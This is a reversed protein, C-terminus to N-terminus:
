KFEPIPNTRVWIKEEPIYRWAQEDLLKREVQRDKFVYLIVASQTATKAEGEGTMIPSQLVQYHAVKINDLNDPIKTVAKLEPELFNYAQGILGWRITAGYTRLAKTLTKEADTESMKGLDIGLSRCGTYALTLMLLLLFTFQTKHTVM